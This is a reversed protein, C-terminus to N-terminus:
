HTAELAPRCLGARWLASEQAAKGTAAAGQLLSFKLFRCRPGNPNPPLDWPSGTSEASFIGLSVCGPSIRRRTFILEQVLFRQQFSLADFAIKDNDEEQPRCFGFFLFNSRMRPVASKVLVRACGDAVKFYRLPTWDACAVTSPPSSCCLMASPPQPRRPRQLVTFRLITRNDPIDVAVSCSQACVTDYRM